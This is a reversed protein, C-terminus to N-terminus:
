LYVQPLLNSAFHQAVVAALKDQNHKELHTGLGWCISFFVIKALCKLVSTEWGQQLNLAFTKSCVLIEVFALM